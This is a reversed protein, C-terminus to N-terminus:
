FLGKRRWDISSTRSTRCMGDAAARATHCYLGSFACSKQERRESVRLRVALAMHAASEPILGRVSSVVQSPQGVAFLPPFM